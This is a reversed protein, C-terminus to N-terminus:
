SVAKQIRDIAVKLAEWDARPIQLTDEPAPSPVPADPERVLYQRDVFGTNGKYSVRAWNANVEELVDVTDGKPIFGTSSSKNTNEWLNLSLPKSTNVTAKYSVTIPEEKETNDEAASLSTGPYYFALIERYTLGAEAARVAGMQSLGVGHGNKPETTWPDPKGVLYPINERWVEHCAMVQGGNSHSYYASAVKGGYHLMQGATEKVARHANPYSPHVSRPARYAQNMTTDDIVGASARVFGFSRAAVAQAKCAELPANGIEAPVVGLLYTEMDLTIVTNLPVSFFDANEQRTLKIRVNMANLREAVRARLRDMSDGFKKMWPEPDSHYSAFGRKAAEYHGVISSAPLNLLQCLYACYEEAAQWAANYYATEKPTPAKGSRPANDECVEFQVHAQPDYNYSGRTGGGAGWCAIDYPLTHCVAVDGNKDLGIFGHMSKKSTTRNWHNDHTNFGLLDPAEVYRRLEPNTAGTSHVFIGIPKIPRARIYGANKTQIVEYLKM